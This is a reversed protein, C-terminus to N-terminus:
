KRIWSSMILFNLIFNGTQKSSEKVADALSGRKGYNISDGWMAEDGESTKALVTMPMLMFAMLIVLLVSIFKQKRKM